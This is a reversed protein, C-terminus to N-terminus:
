FRHLNIINPFICLRVLLIQLYFTFYTSFDIFSYFTLSADANGTMHLMEDLEDQKCKRKYGNAMCKTFM